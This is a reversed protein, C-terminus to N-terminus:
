FIFLVFNQPSEQRGVKLNGFVVFHKITNYAGVTRICSGQISRAECSSNIFKEAAFYMKNNGQLFIYCGSELAQGTHNWCDNMATCDIMILISCNGTGLDSSMSCSCCPQLSCIYLGWDGNGQLAFGYECSLYSCSWIRIM